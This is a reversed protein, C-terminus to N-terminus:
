NYRPLAMVYIQHASHECIVRRHIVCWEIHVEKSKIARKISMKNFFLIM